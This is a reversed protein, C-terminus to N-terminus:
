ITIRELMWATMDRSRGVAELCLVKRLVHATGLIISLQASETVDPINLKECWTKANRSVTRLAGTVFPIVTVTPAQHMHKVEFALDQYCEVKCNETKEINLDAPVAIAVMKWEKTERCVLTIDPRNHQLHRDTYITMDWMCKLETNEAVPMPKHEYWKETCKVGYKQCM